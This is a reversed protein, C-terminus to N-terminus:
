LGLWVPTCMTLVDTSNLLVTFCLSLVWSVYALLWYVNWLYFWLFRIGNWELLTQALLFSSYVIIHPVCREDFVTWFLFWLLQINIDCMYVLFYLCSIFPCLLALTGWSTQGKQPWCISLLWLLCSHVTAQLCFGKFWTCFLSHIPVIHWFFNSFEHLSFCWFCQWIGVNSGNVAWTACICFLVFITPICMHLDGHVSCCMTEVFTVDVFFESLSVVVTVSTVSFHALSLNM